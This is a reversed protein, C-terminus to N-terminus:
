GLGEVLDPFEQLSTGSEAQLPVLVLADFPADVDPHSGGLACRGLGVVRQQRGALRFLVVQQPHEGDVDGM